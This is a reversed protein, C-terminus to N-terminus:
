AFNTINFLARGHVRIEPKEDGEELNVCNEWFIDESGFQDLNKFTSYALKCELPRINFKVNDHKPYVRRIPYFSYKDKCLTNNSEIDIDATGESLLYDPNSAEGGYDFYKLYYNEICQVFHHEGKFLWINFTM